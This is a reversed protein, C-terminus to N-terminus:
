TPLREKVVPSLSRLSAKAAKPSTELQLMMLSLNLPSDRPKPNDLHRVFVLGYLGDRHQVALVELAAGELDVLGLGPRVPGAAPATKAAAAAPPVSREPSM